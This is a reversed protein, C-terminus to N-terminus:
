EQKKASPVATEIILMGLFDDKETILNRWKSENCNTITKIQRRSGSELRRDYSSKNRLM